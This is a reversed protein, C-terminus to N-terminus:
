NSQCDNIPGEGVDNDDVGSPVACCMGYTLQAYKHLFLKHQNTKLQCAFELLQSSGNNRLANFGRWSGRVLRMKVAKAEM